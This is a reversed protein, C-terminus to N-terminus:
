FPLITKPIEPSYIGIYHVSMLVHLVSQDKRVLDLHGCLCAYYLPTSDWKDRVNVDLEKHEALYRVQEM